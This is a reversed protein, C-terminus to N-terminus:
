WVRLVGYRLTALPEENPFGRTLIGTLQPSDAEPRLLVAVSLVMLDHRYELASNYLKMRGPLVATDHGAQFDLHLLYHPDDHVRLVKDAAGSIVTAIDADAVTVRRRRRGLLPLWDAPVTEVLTKLVPDFDGPM